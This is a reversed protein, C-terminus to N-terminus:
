YLSLAQFLGLHMLTGGLWAKYTSTHALFNAQLWSSIQLVLLDALSELSQITDLGGRVKLVKADKVSM